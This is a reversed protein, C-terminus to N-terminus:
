RRRAPPSGAPGPAYPAWQRPPPWDRPAPGTKRDREEWATASRHAQGSGQETQNAGQLRLVCRAPVQLVEVVFLVGREGDGIQLERRRPSANGDSRDNLAAANLGYRGNRAISAR